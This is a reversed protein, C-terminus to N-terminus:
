FLNVNIRKFICYKKEMHILRIKKSDKQNSDASVSKSSLFVKKGCNRSRKYKVQPGIKQVEWTGEVLPWSVSGSGYLYVDRIRM